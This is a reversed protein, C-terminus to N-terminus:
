LGRVCRVGELRGCTVTLARVGSDGWLLFIQIPVISLIVGQSIPKSRRRRPPQNSPSPHQPSSTFPTPSSPFPPTYRHPSLSLHPFALSSSLHHSTQSPHPLHTDLSPSLPMLPPIPSYPSTKLYPLLFPLTLLSLCTVFLKHIYFLAHYYTHCLSISPPLLDLYFFM